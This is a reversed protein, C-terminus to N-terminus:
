EKQFGPRHAMYKARKSSRRLQAQGNDGKREYFADKSLTIGQTALAVSWAQYYYPLSDLLVGDCDFIIAKKLAPRANKGYELM